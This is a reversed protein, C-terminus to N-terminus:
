FYGKEWSDLRHKASKAPLWEVDTGQDRLRELADLQCVNPTSSHLNLISLSPRACAGNRLRSEMMSVVRSCRDDDSINCVSIARLDPCLPRVDNTPNSPITLHSLIVDVEFTPILGLRLEVLTSTRNLISLLDLYNCGKTTFKRLRCSSRDILFPLSAANLLIHIDELAPLALFDLFEGDEIFLVRLSPLESIWADQSGLPRDLNALSLMMPVTNTLSLEVLNRASALQHLDGISPVRQRLRTIQTWPLYLSPKGTMSVCTLKPAIEFARCSGVGTSDGYKLQRLMPVNGHVRELIPLMNVGMQLDVTEWRSSCDIIPGLAETDSYIARITLGCASSRELHTTLIPLPVSSNINSWLKPLSISIARWRSCVRGLIWPSRDITRRRPADAVTYSFIENLVDAPLRRVVSVIINSRHIHDLAHKRMTRLKRLIDELTAISAELKSVRTHVVDLADRIEAAEVDSPADNTTLLHHPLAPLPNHNSDLNGSESQVFGCNSCPFQSLTM